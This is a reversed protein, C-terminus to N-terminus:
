SWGYCRAARFVNRRPDRGQSRRSLRAEACELDTRERGARVPDGRQDPAAGRGGDVSLRSGTPDVGYSSVLTPVMTDLFSSFDVQAFDKSEYLTQHILRWPSSATRARGCCRAGTRDTIRTSQLDLLSHVIQLNNKVRHHIEGLLIDKEKLAPQIREEKQKRDSIDVIASLVMPGEETEIPNLGIEVPFETGDKRLGFLDRGAGMPRSQPDGFFSGRLDPHNGRFREPVLMEISQGLM